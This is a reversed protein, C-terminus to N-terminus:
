QKPQADGLETCRDIELQMGTHGALQLSYSTNQGTVDDPCVFCM